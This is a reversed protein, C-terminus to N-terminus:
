QLEINTLVLFLGLPRIEKIAVSGGEDNELAIISQWKKWSESECFLSGILGESALYKTGSKPIYDAIGNYVIDV